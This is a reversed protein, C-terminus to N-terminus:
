SMGASSVSDPLNSHNHHSHGGHQQNFVSAKASEERNNEGDEAIAGSKNDEKMQAQNQWQGLKGVLKEFIFFGVIGSLAM